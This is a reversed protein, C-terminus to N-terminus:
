VISIFKQYMRIYFSDTFVVSIVCLITVIFAIYVLYKWIKVEKVYLALSAGLGTVEWAIAIEALIMHISSHSGLRSSMWTVNFAVLFFVVFFDKSFM